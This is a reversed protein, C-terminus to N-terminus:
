ERAPIGEPDGPQPRPVPPSAPDPAAPQRAPEPWAPPRRAAFAAIGERRDDSLAATRWAADEVELAAALGLGSGLRLAQKAARVAVPSNAAIQAALELACAAATGAPVVRDALGIRGAEAADVKRGTLVLDAARGQGLRRAPLQTGGCGPVLGVTVEPLGFVASEDAVILDCSLALECGGGLAFGHVAAIVPQPLGLLAGFAARFAPRQALIQADSMAAREKLDAGACFAREGAASLVAARVGADGAIRALSRELERLMETSLANMAAPRSLVIEAVAGDRHERVQVLSFTAV